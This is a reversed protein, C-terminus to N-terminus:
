IMNHMKPVFGGYFKKYKSLFDSILFKLRIIHGWVHRPSMIIDVINRLLLYIQWHENEEEVKDGVIVGFYMALNLLEARSM